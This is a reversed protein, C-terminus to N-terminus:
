ESKEEGSSATAGPGGHLADRATADGADDEGPAQVRPFALEFTTGRGPGGLVRIRGGHAAVIQQTLALGLGTGHEKTTFFPDFIRAQVAPPIGPGDDTVRLCVEGDEAAVSVRVCGGKEALAERANRLLNLLAQRLQAEDFAVAPLSRAVDLELWVGAQELEARMFEAVEGAAEGLDGPELRPDPLRALRLYEETVATLRDVERHVARLLSQVEPGSGATEEELLEVNLGISSLPNRVEHTVHAAMRGIAALRESHILRAKTRLEDTVDEAVVLVSRAGGGAPAEGFPTVLVDLLRAADASALGEVPEPAGLEAPLLPTAALVARESGARVDAIAAELAPLRAGLPLTPLARGVEDPAVGFLTAASPNVSRVIGDGDVLVVAARLGAVIQAQMRELARLREAADHLRADRAALADVMREFEAALRAIEDDGASSLRAADLEGRAVAAVREQLRPLPALTRQTYFTVLLGVLLAALALLVLLQLSRREEREADASMAAIGAQMADSARRLHREVAREKTRLEALAAEARETDRAVVARGLDDFRREDAAYVARVRSLETGVATLVARADDPADLASARTVGALARALLSQRLVRASRLYALTPTTDQEALVGDMRTLFVGHNARLEAVDLALPLFGEPLLGLTRATEQHQAISAAVVVGFAAIVLAFGAFTRTPISVRPRSAM